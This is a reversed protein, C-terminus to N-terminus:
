EQVIAQCLHNTFRDLFLLQIEILEVRISFSEVGEDFLM